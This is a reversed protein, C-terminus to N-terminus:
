PSLPRHLPDLFYSPTMTSHHFGGDQSSIVMKVKELRKGRGSAGANPKEVMLIIVM